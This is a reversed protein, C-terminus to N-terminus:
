KEVSMRLKFMTSSGVRTISWLGDSALNFIRTGLGYKSISEPPPITADDVATIEIHGNGARIIKLDIKGARGHRISNSILEEIVQGIDRVRSNRISAIEDDIVLTVGLLGRWPDLRSAVESQLDVSEEDFGLDPNALLSQLNKVTENFTEQDDTSAAAGLKLSTAALRTLIKGHIFLAWEHSLNQSFEDRVVDRVKNQLTESAKLEDRRILNLASPRLVQLLEMALFYILPLILATIYIPFQTQPDHYIAQGVSNFVFPLLGTLLILFASNRFTSLSHESQTKVILHSFIFVAVVLIPYSILFETISYFNIYPPTVLALLVFAYTRRHLPKSQLISTSIIRFQRLFLPIFTLNKQLARQAPSDSTLNDLNRSLTRLSDGVLHLKIAGYQDALNDGSATIKSISEKILKCSDRFEERIRDQLEKQIEKFEQSTRSQARTAIILRNEYERFQRFIEKRNGGIFVFAPFWLSGQILTIGIRRYISVLEIEFISALYAHTLDGLAIVAIGTMALNSYTVHTLQLNKYTLSVVYATLLMIITHIIRLTILGSLNNEIEKSLQTFFVSIEILVIAVPVLAFDIAYTEKSNRGANRMRM